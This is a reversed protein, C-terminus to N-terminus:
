DTSRYPLMLAPWTCGSEVIATRRVTDVKVGKMLSFDIVLGDDCLALGAINHGGGRIALLINQDHAFRIARVVDSSSKCQVIIAPKRDIM